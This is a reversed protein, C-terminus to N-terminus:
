ATTKGSRMLPGTAHAEDGVHRIALLILQDFKSLPM